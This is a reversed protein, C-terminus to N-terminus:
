VKEEEKLKSYIYQSEGNEREIVVAWVSFSKEELKRFRTKKFQIEYEYEPFKKKFSELYKIDFVLKKVDKQVHKYGDSEALFAERAEQNPLIIQLREVSIDSVIEFM